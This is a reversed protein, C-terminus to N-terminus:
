KMLYPIQRAVLKVDGASLYQARKKQRLVKRSKNSLCHQTGKSWFKVKGGGTVKFRKAAGSNTKMKPRDGRSKKCGAM